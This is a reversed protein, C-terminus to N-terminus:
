ETDLLWADHSPWELGCEESKKKIVMAQKNTIGITQSTNGAKVFKHVDGVTELLKDHCQTVSTKTLETLSDLDISDALNKQNDDVEESGGDGEDTHANIPEDNRDGTRQATVIGHRYEFDFLDRRLEDDGDLSLRIGIEDDDIKITNCTASTSIPKIHLDGTGKGDDTSMTINLAASLFMNKIEIIEEDSEYPIAVGISGGIIADKHRRSSSGSFQVGTFKRIPSDIIPGQTNSESVSPSPPITTAEM